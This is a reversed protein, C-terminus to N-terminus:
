SSGVPNQGADRPQAVSAGKNTWRLYPELAGPTTRRCRSRQPGGLRQERADAFTGSVCSMPWRSGPRRPWGSGAPPLWAAFATVADAGIKALRSSGRRVAALRGPLRSAGCGGRPGHIRFGTSRVSRAWWKWNSSVASPRRSFGGLMTSLCVLSASAMVKPRRASASTTTVSSSCTAARRPAGPAAVCSLPGSIM